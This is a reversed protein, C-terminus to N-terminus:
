ETFVQNFPRFLLIDGEDSLSDLDFKRTEVEMQFLVLLGDFYDCWEQFLESLSVVLMKEDLGPHNLRLDVILKM